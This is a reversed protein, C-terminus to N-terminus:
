VAAGEADEAGVQPPDLQDALQICVAKIQAMAGIQGTESYLEPYRDAVLASDRLSQALERKHTVVLASFASVTEQRDVKYSWKQPRWNLAMISSTALLERRGRLSALVFNWNGTM